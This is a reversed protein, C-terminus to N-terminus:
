VGFYQAASQDESSGSHLGLRQQVVDVGSVRQVVEELVEWGHVSVVCSKEQLLGQPLIPHLNAFSLGRVDIFVAMWAM